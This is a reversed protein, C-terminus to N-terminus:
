GLDASVDHAVGLAAAPQTGDLLFIMGITSGKFVCISGAGGGPAGFQAFAAGSMPACLFATDGVSDQVSAGFDVDIDQQSTLSAPFSQFFVENPVDTVEAPLGEFTMLMAAPTEGEGYFAMDFSIGGFEFNSFSEELQRLVDSDTRPHGNIEDVSGGGGRTLFFVTLAGLVVLGAVFVLVIGTNSKKPMVGPHMTPQPGPPVSSPPPPPRFGHDDAVAPGTPMPPPTSPTPTVLTPASGQESVTGGQPLEGIQAGCNRCVIAFDENVTRCAKCTKTQM